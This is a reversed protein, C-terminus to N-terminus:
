RKMAAGGSIKAAVHFAYYAYNADGETLFSFGRKAKFETEARARGLKVAMDIFQDIVAKDKPPPTPGSFVQAASGAADAAASAASSTEKTAAFAIHDCYALLSVATQSLHQRVDARTESATDRDYMMGDVWLGSATAGGTTQLSQIGSLLSSLTVNQTLNADLYVSRQLPLLSRGEGTTDFLKLAAILSEFTVCSTLAQSQCLICNNDLMSTVLSKTAIIAESLEVPVETLFEAYGVHGERVEGSRLFIECLEHLAPFRYTVVADAASQRQQQSRASGAVAKDANQEDEYSLEITSICSAGVWGRCLTSLPAESTDSAQLPRRVGRSSCIWREVRSPHLAKPENLARQAAEAYHPHLAWLLLLRKLSHKVDAHISVGEEEESVDTGVSSAEGCCRIGRSALWCAVDEVTFAPMGTQFAAQVISHVESVSFRMTAAALLVRACPLLCRMNLAVALTDMVGRSSKTHSRPSLKWGEAILRGLPTPQLCVASDGGADAASVWREVCGLVSLLECARNLERRCAAADVLLTSYPIYLLPYKQVDLEAGLAYVPTMSDSAPMVSPSRFRRSTWLLLMGLNEVSESSGLGAAWEQRATRQQLQLDHHTVKPAFIAGASVTAPMCAAISYWCEESQFVAPHDFMDHTTPPTVLGAFCVLRVCMHREQVVVLADELVSEDSVFVFVPSLEFPVDVARLADTTSLIRMPEAVYRGETVSKLAQALDASHCVVVIVPSEGLVINGTEMDDCLEEHQRVLFAATSAIVDRMQLSASASSRREVAFREFSAAPSSAAKDMNNSNLTLRRSAIKLSRESFACLQDCALRGQEDDFATVVLRIRDVVVDGHGHHLLSAVCLLFHQLYLAGIATDIIHDANAVVYLKPSASGVSFLVTTAIDDYLQAFDAATRPLSVCCGNDGSRSHTLVHSLDSLSRNNTTVFGFWRNKLLSEDRLWQHIYDVSSDNGNLDQPFITWKPPQSLLRPVRQLWEAKSEFYFYEASEASYVLSPSLRHTKCRRLEDFYLAAEIPPIYPVDAFYGHRKSDHMRRKVTPRHQQQQQM